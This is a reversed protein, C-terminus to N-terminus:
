SFFLFCGGAPPKANRKGRFYAIISRSVNTHNWCCARLRRSGELNELLVGVRAGPRAHQPSRVPWNFRGNEHRNAGLGGDLGDIRAFEVLHVRLDDKAVGVM